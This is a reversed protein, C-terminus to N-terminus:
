TSEARTSGAQTSEVFAAVLRRLVAQEAGVPDPRRLLSRGTDDVVEASGGLDAAAAAAPEFQGPTGASVVVGFAPDAAWDGLAANSVYQQLKAPPVAARLRAGGVPQWLTARHAIDDDLTRDVLSLPGETPVRQRYFALTREDGLYGCFLATPTLVCWQPRLPSPILRAIRSPVPAFTALLAGAPRRYTRTTLTILRGLAGRQGVMLKTLDYGAVNKVTRGGASILENRGNVFQVGLLLDRWAGYGLRLPGTSNSDVMGGISMGPDGDVPLWQDVEALRAQLEVLPVDTSVTATMDRPHLDIAGPPVLPSRPPRVDHAAHM